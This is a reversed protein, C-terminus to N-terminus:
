RGIPAGQEALVRGLFQVAFSNTGFESDPPIKETLVLLQGLRMMILAFRYGAFVEYYPVHGAPAGSMKEYRAITEDHSPFGPPRPVGLGDSFVRDFYLWWALDRAPDGLAAMEWDLVAVCRFDRFM